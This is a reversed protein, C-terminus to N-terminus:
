LMSSAMIVITEIGQYVLVHWFIIIIVNENKSVNHFM